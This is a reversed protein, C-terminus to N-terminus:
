PVQRSVQKNFQAQQNRVLACIVHYDPQCSLARAMATTADILQVLVRGYVGQYEVEITASDGNIIGNSAVWELGMSEISEVAFQNGSRTVRIVFPSDEAAWVGSWASELGNPVAQLYPQAHHPTQAHGGASFLLCALLLTFTRAGSSSLLRNITDQEQRNLTVLVRM